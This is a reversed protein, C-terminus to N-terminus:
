QKRYYTMAEPVYSKIDEIRTSSAPHTSLFRAPDDRAAQRNHNGLEVSEVM